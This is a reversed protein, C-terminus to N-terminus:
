PGADLDFRPQRAAESSADAGGLRMFAARARAADSQRGARAYASGLSFQFQPETPVLRAATELEPIARTVDGTDLYLLGLLYHGFPYSPQLTVVERAFPIAAASDVRYYIAAIQMRARVQGPDNAIEQTFQEIAGDRDGLALLFRGFAYHVKPFAPFERVLAGYAAKALDWQQALRQHEAQGARLVIQQEKTGAAPADRPRILLVGLGLATDLEGSTVGDEVLINLAELADEYRGKRLLLMGEHYHLVRVLQRDRKIGLSKAARIHQLASDTRDLQYECLALMLHATGNTSDLAILRRFARAASAYEDRDYLITGLSWWGEQWDPRRALAKRYLSVAEDLRGADRAADAQASASTAPQSGTAVQALVQSAFVCLLGALALSRMFIRVYTM